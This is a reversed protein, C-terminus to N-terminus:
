FQKEYNFPSFERKEKKIWYSEKNKDIKRNLLDVGFLRLGLGIPTFISYFLIFLFLRTNAWSLLLAFRMWFIYIPRLFAPIVFALIFFIASILFTPLISQKHRVLILLTIILFVFGMTIGFKKLNQKDLNLNQM